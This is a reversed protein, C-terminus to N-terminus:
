VGWFYLNLDTKNYSDFFILFLDFYLDQEKSTLLVKFYKAESYIIKKIFEPYDCVMHQAFLYM